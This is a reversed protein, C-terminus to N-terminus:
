KGPKRKKQNVVPPPCEKEAKKLMNRYKKRYKISDAAKLQGVADDNSICHLWHGDGNINIGTEDVHCLYSNLLKKKVFNEFIKLREYAEENFNYITGSSIPIDAQDRFNEEVRNYPILQYQSMYVSHIKVNIGYQVPRNIGEPFSAVFQNGNNGELTQARYETVVRSIEIDIM